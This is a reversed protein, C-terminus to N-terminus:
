ANEIVKDSIATLGAGIGNLWSTDIPPIFSCAVLTVVFFGGILEASRHQRLVNLVIHLGIRSLAANFAVFALFLALALPLSSPPHLKLYGLATGTVPAYIVISRPEFLSAFTSAIMLRLSSIPFASYRSLESHDDVGAA